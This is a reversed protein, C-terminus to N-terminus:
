VVPRVGAPRVADKLLQKDSFSFESHAENPEDQCSPMGVRPNLSAREAQRVLQAIRRVDLGRVTVPESLVERPELLVQLRRRPEVSRFRLTEITSFRASDSPELVSCSLM